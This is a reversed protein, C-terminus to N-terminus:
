NETVKIAEPIWKCIEKGNVTVNIKSRNKIKYEFLKIQSEIRYNSFKRIDIRKIFLPFRTLYDVDKKWSTGGEGKKKM